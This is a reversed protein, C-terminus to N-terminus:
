CGRPRKRLGHDLFPPQLGMFADNQIAMQFKRKQSNGRCFQIRARFVADNWPIPVRYNRLYRSSPHAFHSMLPFCFLVMAALASPVCLLTRGLIRRCKARRPHEKRESRALEWGAADYELKWPRLKRRFALWGGITLLVGMFSASLALGGSPSLYAFTAGLLGSLALGVLLVAVESGFILVRKITRM